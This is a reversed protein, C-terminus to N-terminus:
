VTSFFIELSGLPEALARDLADRAPLRGVVGRACVENM